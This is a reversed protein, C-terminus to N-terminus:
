ALVCLHKTWVSSSPIAGKKIELNLEELTMIKDGLKKSESCFSCKPEDEDTIAGCKSCQRYLM